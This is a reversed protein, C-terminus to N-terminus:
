VKRTVYIFDHGYTPLDKIKEGALGDVILKEGYKHHIVDGKGLTYEPNTINGTEFLAKLRELHPQGALKVVLLMCAVFGALVLGVVILWGWWAYITM